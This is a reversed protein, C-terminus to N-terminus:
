RYFSDEENLMGLSTPYFNRSYMASLSELMIRSDSAPTRYSGSRLFNMAGEEEELSPLLARSKPHLLATGAEIFNSNVDGRQPPQWHEHKNKLYSTLM